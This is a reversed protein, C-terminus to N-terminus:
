PNMGLAIPTQVNLFTFITHEALVINATFNMFNRINTKKFDNRLSLLLISDDFKQLLVEKYVYIKENFAAQFIEFQKGKLVLSKFVHELTRKPQDLSEALEKRLSENADCLRRFEDNSNANHMLKELNKSMPKRVMGISHLGLNAISNVREVPNRYSLNAATQTILIEEFNHQLFLVIYSKQVSLNDTKREPGGGSYVHLYPPTKDFNETMVYAIEAACRMASSRESVMSKFGYFVQGFYWEELRSGKDLLDDDVKEARLEDKEPIEHLLYADPIISLKSFDHDTVLFKENLGVTVKKGRTEAAIPYAPEGIPVKCKADASFFSINQRDKVARERM